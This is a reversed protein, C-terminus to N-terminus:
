HGHYVELTPSDHKYQLNGMTLSEFAYKAFFPVVGLHRYQAVHRLEHALIRVNNAHGGHMVVDNGLTISTGILVPLIGGKRFNVTSLNPSSERAKSPLAGSKDWSGQLKYKSEMSSKSVKPNYRTGFMLIRAIGQAAGYKAGSVLGEGIDEGKAASWIMGTAAGYFAQEAVELIRNVWVSGVVPATIGIATLGAGLSSTLAGFITGEL